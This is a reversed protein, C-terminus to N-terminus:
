GCLGQSIIWFDYRETCTPKLLSRYYRVRVKHDWWRSLSRESLFRQQQRRREPYYSKTSAESVFSACPEHGCDRQSVRLTLLAGAVNM